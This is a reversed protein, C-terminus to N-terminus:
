SGQSHLLADHLQRRSAVGLKVFVKGMHWEVTRASIFLQAGIEANTRGESALRSIQAEQPTLQDFTDVTRKRVSEGTALLEGRAREAFAQIGMANFMEHATRLQARADVRRNERRLWEGYLLHSRALEPRIATQSLHDIAAKYLEEAAPGDTLLARSRASLGLAWHSTSSVVAKSQRGLAVQSDAPRGCRVAAEIHEHLLLHTGWDPPESIAASTLTLAREYQGRGNHLLASAWKSYALAGAHGAERATMALDDLSSLSGDDGRWGAAFAGGWAVLNGRTADLIQSIETMALDARDLEGHFALVQAYANLAWPLMTLAGVERTTDVYLTGLRLLADDDWLVSAAATMLGLWAFSEGALADSATADVARRLAPTAAALGQIANQAHGLVLWELTTPNASRPRALVVRAVDEIGTGRAYSGAVNSAAMAHLYALLARQVDFRECQRAAYLMRGPAERLDGGVATHRAWLLELHAHGRDDLRTGEAAALLRACEEFSGAELYANAAALMRLGRRTSDLTLAASRELLAGAAALGGRARARGASHELAEAIDEDPGSAGLARHWAQRDPEEDSDTAQAPAQHAAQRDALTASGYAASRVLPHRFSIRVGIDLLGSDIAPAADGAGIGLAAAARWVVVPDGTPDAAALTLFRQTADPLEAVRRRFSAEIQGTMPMAPMGFGGTLEAPTLGRPWEVLALPNGRTEAVIRDRVREDVSVHLVASLLARADGVPLGAVVLEPLGALDPTVNRAAFVMGVRDALLRRAVFALVQSSERDLWQTDDVVCLLPREDSATSLLNLLALSILLRDLAKGTALGFATAAAERQPRALADLRDLMSACLQHVAAFPLEMESEVGTVHLVQLDAAANIGHRLLASKGVGAEGRVVVVRSRGARVDDLLSELAHCERTRGILDIPPRYRPV